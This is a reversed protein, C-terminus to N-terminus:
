LALASSCTVVACKGAICEHHACGSNGDSCLQCFQPLPGHCDADGSCGAITPVCKCASSDWHSGKICLANEVCGPADGAVAGGSEGGAGAEAAGGTAGTAGTAGSGRLPSGTSCAVLLVSGALAPAWLGRPKPRAKANTM